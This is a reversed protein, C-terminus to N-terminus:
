KKKWLFDVNQRAISEYGLSEMYRTYTMDGKEYNNDELCIYSITTTDWDICNLISLEAGEVDVQLYDIHSPLELSSWKKCPIKIISAPASSRSGISPNASNLLEKHSDGYTEIIGNWEPRDPFMAFEVEGDHDYVAVNLCRCRRNNKLLEFSPPSAEIAVGDWGAKELVITSNKKRGDWAGIEVYFGPKNSKWVDNFFTYSIRPQKM